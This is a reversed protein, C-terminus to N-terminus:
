YSQKWKGVLKYDRHISAEIDEKGNRGIRAYRWELIEPYAILDNFRKGALKKGRTHLYFIAHVASAAIDGIAEQSGSDWM